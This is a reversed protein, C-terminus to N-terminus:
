RITGCSASGGSVAATSTVSRSITSCIAWRGSASSRACCGRGASESAASFSFTMTSFTVWRAEAIQRLYVSDEALTEYSQLLYSRKHVLKAVRQGTKRATRRVLDPDPRDADPAVVRDPELRHGVRIRVVRLSGGSLDLADRSGSAFDDPQRSLPTAFGGIQATDARQEVASSAAHRQHGVDMKQGGGGEHRGFLDLFHPDIGAVPVLPAALEVLQQRCAAPASDRQAYADVVTRQRRRDHFAVAVRDFAHDGRRHLIQAAAALCRESLDDDRDLRAVHAHHHLCVPHQDGRHAALSHAVRQM